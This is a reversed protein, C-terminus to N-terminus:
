SVLWIGCLVAKGASSVCGVGRRPVTVIKFCLGSLMLLIRQGLMNEYTKSNDEMGHLVCSYFANRLRFEASQKYSLFALVCKFM